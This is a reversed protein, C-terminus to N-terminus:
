DENDLETVSSINYAEESISIFVERPMKMDYAVVASIGLLASLVSVQSPQPEMKEIAAFVVDSVLHGQLGLAELIIDKLEM